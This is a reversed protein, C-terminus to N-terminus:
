NPRKTNRGFSLQNTNEKQNRAEILKKRLEKGDENAATSLAAIISEMEAYDLNLTVTFDTKIHVVETDKREVNIIM